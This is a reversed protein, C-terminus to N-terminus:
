GGLLRAPIPDAPTEQAWYITVIWWRQGDDLLQFSNVGRAFPEADAAAHRSEYASMVHVVPGYREVARGIEREFFGQEELFPASREVYADPTLV